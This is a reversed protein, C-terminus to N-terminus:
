TLESLYRASPKLDVLDAIRVPQGSTISRNAAIGVLISAAGQEPGAGRGLPDPPPSASFIQEQLLPDAGGHGGPAPPIKVEYGSGFLPLVRLITVRGEEAEDAGNGQKDLIPERHLETYELRGRDGNFNVKIGEYPCFANLSYNLVVGGRYKVLASMTDEIDISDRFVNEDRLYGTEEEAELYLRRAPGTDLSLRFPDNAAEPVGTYRPYATLAEDGRAIANEKGYFALKGHAFVEEPIADLWWNVLDFHHTAKHVLLGGSQERCSHWRRFYDAGHSTDLLYELQVSQVNGIEGERLLTFVRSAGSGWRYNFAVRIRDYQGNAAALIARCKEEDITMPKEVVVECGMELAQLIYQHHTGDISCVIVSDPKEDLVMREFDDASYVPVKPYRFKEVLREQHFRARILSTDCLGVLESDNRYDTAIPDTYTSVRMGTGVIAFRKKKSSEKM